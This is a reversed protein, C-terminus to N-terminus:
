WRAVRECYGRARRERHPFVFMQTFTGGRTEFTSEWSGLVPAYRTEPDQASLDAAPVALAAAPICIRGDTLSGGESKCENPWGTSLEFDAPNFGTEAVQEIRARTEDDPIADRAAYLERLVPVAVQCASFLADLAQYPAVNETEYQQTGELTEQTTVPQKILSVLLKIIEPSQRPSTRLVEGLISIAAWKSERIQTQAYIRLLRGPVERAQPALSNTHAGILTLELFARSRADQDVGVSAIRELGDLFQQREADTYRAYNGDMEFASRISISGLDGQELRTIVEAAAPARQAAVETPAVAYTIWTGIVLCLLRLSANQSLIRM